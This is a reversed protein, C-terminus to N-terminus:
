KRDQIDWAGRAMQEELAAAFRRYVDLVGAANAGGEAAIETLADNLYQRALDPRGLMWAIVARRWTSLKIRYQESNDLAQIGALSAHEQMWPIGYDRIPQCAQEAPEEVSQGPYFIVRLLPADPILLDVGTQVTAPHYRHYPLHACTAVLREVDQHLLGVWPTIEMSGDGRHVARGLAVWGFLRPALPLTFIDAEHRKFGMAELRQRCASVGATILEKRAVRVRAVGMGQEEKTSCM